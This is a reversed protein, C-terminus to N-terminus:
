LGLEPRGIRKFRHVVDASDEAGRALGLAQKQLDRDPAAVVAADVTVHVAVLLKSGLGPLPDLGIQALRGRESAPPNAAIPHEQAVAVREDRASSLEQLDERPDALVQGPDGPHAGVAVGAADPALRDLLELLQALG